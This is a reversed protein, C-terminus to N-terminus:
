AYVQNNRALAIVPNEPNLSATQQIGSPGQFATSVAMNPPAYQQPNPQATAVQNKWDEWQKQQQVFVRTYFVCAILKLNIERM